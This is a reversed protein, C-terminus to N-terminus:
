FLSWHRSANESGIRDVSGALRRELAGHADFLAFKLSSSGANLVLLPNEAQLNM